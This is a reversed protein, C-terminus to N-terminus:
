VYHGCLASDMSRKMGVLSKSSESETMNKYDWEGTQKQEERAETEDDSVTSLSIDTLRRVCDKLAQLEAEKSNLKSQASHLESELEVIQHEKQEILLHCLKQDLEAPVVGDFQSSHLNQGESEYLRMASAEAQAVNRFEIERDEGLNQRMEEQQSAETICWPLKQLESELEAELEDMELVSPEPEETLVSNADVKGASGSIHVHHSSKRKHLETKLEQVVKATEDVALNLKSIETKGASMMYMIGVGLGWGFLSSEKSSSSSGSKAAVNKNTKRRKLCVAFKRASKKQIEAEEKDANGSREGVKKAGIQKRSGIAPKKRSNKSGSRSGSSSFRFINGDQKVPPSDLTSAQPNLNHSLNEPEPQDPIPNTNTTTPDANPNFLHKAVLGTSGAVAAAVLVQWM